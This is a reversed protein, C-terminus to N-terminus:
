LSPKLRLWIRALVRVSRLVWTECWCCWCRPRSGTSSQEAM